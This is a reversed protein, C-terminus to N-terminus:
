QARSLITAIVELFERLPRGTVIRGCPRFHAELPWSRNSSSMWGAAAGLPNVALDRTTSYEVLTLTISFAAM